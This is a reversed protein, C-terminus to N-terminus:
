SKFFQQWLDINSASSFIFIDIISKVPLGKGSLVKVDYSTKNSSQIECLEYETAQLSISNTLNEM